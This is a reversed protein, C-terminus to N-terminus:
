WSLATIAALALAALGSVALMLGSPMFKKTKRLRRSFIITLAMAVATALLYGGFANTLALRYAVVLLAASALSATLSIRSGSLRWGIIGGVVLIGGYVWLIAVAVTHV